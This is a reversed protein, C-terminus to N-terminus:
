KSGASGHANDNDSGSDNMSDREPTQERAPKGDKDVKNWWDRGEEKCYEDKKIFFFDLYEDWTLLDSQVGKAVRLKKWLERSSDYELANM